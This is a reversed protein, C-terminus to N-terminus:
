YKGLTVEVMQALSIRLDRGKQLDALQQGVIERIDRVLVESTVLGETIYEQAEESRVVAEPVDDWLARFKEAWDKDYGVVMYHLNAKMLANVSDRMSGIYGRVVAPKEDSEVEKLLDKLERRLEKRKMVREAAEQAKTKIKTVPEALIPTAAAFVSELVTELYGVEGHLEARIEPTMEMEVVQPKIEKKKISVPSQKTEPANAPKNKEVKLMEFAAALSGKTVVGNVRVTERVEELIKLALEPDVPRSLFHRSRGVLHERGIRLKSEIDLYFASLKGGRVGSAAALLGPEEKDYLAQVEQVREEKERAQQQQRAEEARVYALQKEKLLRQIGQTTESIMRMIESGQEDSHVELQLQEQCWKVQGIVMEFEESTFGLKESQYRRSEMDSLMSMLKKGTSRYENQMQFSLVPNGLIARLKELSTSTHWESELYMKLLLPKRAGEPGVEFRTEIPIASFDVPFLQISAGFREPIGRDSDGAHAEYRVERQRGNVEISEPYDREIRAMMEDPCFDQIDMRLFDGLRQVESLTQANGLRSVYWEVMDPMPVLGQSRVRLEKLTAIVKDNEWPFQLRVGANLITGPNYALAEALKRTAQEGELPVGAVGLYEERYEGRPLSYDVMQVARGLSFDFEIESRPVAKLKDGMLRVVDEISAPHILSAYNRKIKGGFAKGQGETISGAICFAPPHTFASSEPSFNVEQYGDKQLRRYSPLRSEPDRILLREQYGALISANLAGPDTHRLRDELEFRDFNIGAERSFDYMRYAVHRIAEANLHYMRCWDKFDRMARKVEPRRDDGLCEFVGADMAQIFINLRKAWDSGDQEFGVQERAIAERANIKQEEKTYGAARNLEEATPYMFLKQERAFLALVLAADPCGREEAEVLMRADEPKFPIELMREGIETVNGDADLAGLIRLQEVGAHLAEKNPQVFFPFTEPDRGHGRLRLILHALNTREIETVAHKPLKDFEEQTLIRFCTGAEVRGARGARQEAEEQSILETVKRSIGAVPDYRMAYKRCSDVVVTVNPVTVSTEAVNTSVIVRRKAQASKEGSLALNRQDFSLGGHLPLVEIDEIDSLREICDDIERAGPLFVLIDGEQERQIAEKVRNATQELYATREAQPRYLDDRSAEALYHKDVPFTRGEVRMFDKDDFDFFKQFKEPDVTASTLFIFPAKGETRLEKLLGFVYHYDISGEHVEDLIIAGTNSNDVTGNFLYRPLIGSTVVRVPTDRDVMKTESTSYGVDRGLAGETVACHAEAVGKAADKRPQLIIIKDPLGLKKLVNRVAVPSYISKGSGTEGLLLFMGSRAMAEEVRTEVEELRSRIPLDHSEIKKKLLRLRTEPIDESVVKDEEDSLAQQEAVQIKHWYEENQM